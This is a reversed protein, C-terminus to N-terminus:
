RKQYGKGRRLLKWLLLVLLGSGEESRWPWVSVSRNWLCTISVQLLWAWEELNEGRDATFILGEERWDGLGDSGSGVGVGLVHRTVACAEWMSSGGGGGGVLMTTM